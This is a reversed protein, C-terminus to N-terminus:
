LANSFYINKRNKSINPFGARLTPTCRMLPFPEPYLPQCPRKRQVIKRSRGSTNPKQPVLAPNKPPHLRDKTKQNLPAFEALCNGSLICTQTSMTLNRATFLKGKSACFYTNRKGM